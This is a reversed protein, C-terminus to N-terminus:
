FTFGPIEKRVQQVAEVFDHDVEEVSGPEYGFIRLSRLAPVHDQRNTLPSVM